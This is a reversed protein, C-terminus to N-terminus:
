IKGNDSKIMWGPRDASFRQCDDAYGNAAVARHPGVVVLDGVRYCVDQGSECSRDGGDVAQGPTMILVM